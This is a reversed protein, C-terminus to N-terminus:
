ISKKLYYYRGNKRYSIFDHQSFLNFAFENRTIARMEWGKSYEVAKDLLEKGIGIGRYDPLIYFNDIYNHDKKHEISLFGKLKNGGMYLFWTINEDNYLQNDLEKIIKRDAFYPGMLSYFDNGQTKYTQITL